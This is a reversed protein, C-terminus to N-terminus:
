ARVETDFNGCGRRTPQCVYIVLVVLNNMDDCIDKDFSHRSLTTIVYNTFFHGFDSILKVSVDCM